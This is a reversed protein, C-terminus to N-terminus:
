LYFAKCMVRQVFPLTHTSIPLTSTMPYSVVLITSNMLLKAHRNTNFTDNRTTSFSLQKAHKMHIEQKCNHAPYTAHYIIYLSSLQVMPKAHYISNQMFNEQPDSRGSSFGERHEYVTHWGIM